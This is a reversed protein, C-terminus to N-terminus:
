EGKSRAKDWEIKAIKELIAEEVFDNLTAYRKGDIFSRVKCNTLSSVKGCLTIERKGTLNMHIKKSFNLFEKPDGVM